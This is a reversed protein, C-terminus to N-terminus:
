PDIALDILYALSSFDNFGWDSDFLVYRGDVSMTARPQTWYDGGTSHHHALRVVGSGDLRIMYIEDELPDTAGNEPSPYGTVVCVGYPGRCSIHEFGGWDILYLHHVKAQGEAPGPLVRYSLAPYMVDIPKAAEGNVFTDGVTPGTLENTVFVETKGDALVTLDAHPHDSTVHGIYAGTKIDYTELGECRGTGGAAWQVVLYNGLPSVGIWDPDVPGWQPDPTCPGAYLAEPDIQAGLTQTELNFAFIRSWNGVGVAQGAIWKGDRSLEDFSQNKLYMQYEAPFTYLTTTEGSAVDTTELRLEGEGTPNFHVLKGYDTPHWRPNGWEGVPASLVLSFDPLSRVVTLASPTGPLDEALLVYKNDASFAQLQSYFHNVHFDPGVPTLVTNFPTLYQKGFAPAPDNNVSMSAASTGAEEVYRTATEHLGATLEDLKFDTPPPSQTDEPPAATDEPPAATDEPPAATDEPPTTTDEPPTTTDQAPTTDTPSSSDAPSATDTKATDPETSTDGCNFVLPACCLTVILLNCRPRQTEKM